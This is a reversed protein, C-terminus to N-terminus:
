VVKLLMVTIFSHFLFAPFIGLLTGAFCLCVFLCVFLYCCVFSVLLVFLCLFLVFVFRCFFLIIFFVCILFMFLFGACFYYDIKSIVCVCM